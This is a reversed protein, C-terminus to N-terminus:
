FDIQAAAAAADARGNAVDHLADWSADMLALNTVLAAELLSDFAADDLEADGLEIGTRARVEGDELDIEVAGSLLGYNIRALLEVVAPRNEAPVDDPLVSFLRVGAPEENVHALVPWPQPEDDTTHLLLLSPNEAPEVVWERAQFFRTVRAQLATTPM